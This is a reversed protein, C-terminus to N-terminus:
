DIDEKDDDPNTEINDAELEVTKVDGTRIDVLIRHMGNREVDIVYNPVGNETDVAANLVRAGPLISASSAVAQDLTVKANALAAQELADEANDNDTLGAGTATVGLALVSASILKPVFM